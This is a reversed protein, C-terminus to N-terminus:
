GALLLEEPDEMLTKLKVLFQVAERGDVIRHDYSLAVYMMPRIAIEKGGEETAVVVPREEIKHLGLIGVQPPNLIPTSLMSGFVGGNTITFTGGMLDEISLNGGQSKQVFHKVSQEIEAFNMRDANRLVPVVLGEEAGVAIGIDYYHKLVIDTEQIEANLQPFAKLAGVTAKVFFSTFGLNVGNQETFQAKRRKRVNMVASMDLENFTTLMAATQQAHVLREAITRRRRSMRIREEGRSNGSVLSVMPAAHTQRPEQKTDTAAVAKRAQQGEANGQSQSELYDAVDEKTIRGGPGSGSVEELNVQQDTAMRKAVPTVEVEEYSAPKDDTSPSSPTKQSPKPKSVSQSAPPSGNAAEDVLGLVDGIQVDEGEHREIKALTGAKEASVELDVKDTELEVVAEGAAVVDGESKLWRAITAEVVSEGLAPVVIQTAM